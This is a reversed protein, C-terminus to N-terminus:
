AEKIFYLTNSDKTAIADYESQTGAWLKYNGIASDYVSKNLKDDHTHETNAKADLDTKKAVESGNYKVKGTGSTKINIDANSSENAIVFHNNSSSEYGFYGSRNTRNKYFAYYCASGSSSPMMKQVEGNKENVVLNTYTNTGTWTNNAGFDVDGGSPLNDIESADHRHEFDSVDSKAHTHTSPNFSSPVNALSSYNGDFTSFKYWTGWVRNEVGRTWVEGKYTGATVYFTQTGTVGGVNEMMNFLVGWTKRNTPLNQTGTNTKIAGNVTHTNADSTYSQSFPIYESHTHEFDSIDSKNHAHSAPNFQTPINLIDSWAPVYDISKYPHSHIDSKLALKEDVYSKNVDITPITPKNTLSNYNGDFDSKNNWENIKSSTIGDIVSKNTHSHDNPPFWTDLRYPHNHVNSKKALETDVYNKTVDVIPINPKNSLDNYDGSFVQPHNNLHEDIKDDLFIDKSDLDIIKDNIDKLSEDLLVDLESELAENVRRDLELSEIDEETFYDIFKQPTYGADGKDGKGIGITCELSFEEVISANISNKGNIM